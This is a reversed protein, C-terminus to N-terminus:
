IRGRSMLFPVSQHLKCIGNLPQVAVNRPVPVLELHLESVDELEHEPDREEGGNDDDGGVVEQDGEAESRRYM